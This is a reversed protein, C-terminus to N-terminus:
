VHQLYETTSIWARELIKRYGRNKQYSADNEFSATTETEFDEQISLSIIRQCINISFDNYKRISALHIEEFVM